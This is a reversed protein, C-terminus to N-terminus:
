RIKYMSISCVLFIFEDEYFVNYEHHFIHSYPDLFLSSNTFFIKTENWDEFNDMDLGKVHALQEEINIYEVSDVLNYEIEVMIGAFAVFTAIDHPVTIYLKTELIPDFTTEDFPQEFDPSVFSGTISTTEFTYSYKGTTKDRRPFDVKSKGRYWDRYKEQGTNKRYQLFELYHSNLDQDYISRRVSIPVSM